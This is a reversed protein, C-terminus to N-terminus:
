DPFAPFASVARADGLASSIEVLSAKLKLLKDYHKSDPKISAEAPIADPVDAQCRRSLADFIQCTCVYLYIM